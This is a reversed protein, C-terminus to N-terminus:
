IKTIVVVSHIIEPAISVKAVETVKGGYKRITKQAQEVEGAIEPGKMALFIGGKRTFPLAYGALTDLRAVARAVCVDYAACFGPKRCIEEARAHICEVSELGLQATTERLFLIRKRLSDLLTLRIDPKLVALPVGPFGAGAGIDLVSANPSIWPLLTLSDIIHKVAFDRPETITTLNMRTNATLVLDQFVALTDLQADTLTVGNSLAWEMILETQM